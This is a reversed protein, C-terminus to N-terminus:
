LIHVMFSVAVDTEGGANSIDGEAVGSASKNPEHRLTLSLAGNSAAGTSFNTLLGIPNQNADSDAYEFSLNLIPTLGFFLQHDAGEERVEETIDEAPTESENLFTVSASYNTNALLTDNVVIATDPGTGDLDRYTFRAMNGNNDTFELIVTTILEEENVPTPANDKSCGAFALAAIFM